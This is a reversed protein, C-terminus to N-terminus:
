GDWRSTALNQDCSGDLDQVFSDNNCSPKEKKLDAWLQKVLEVSPLKEKEINM